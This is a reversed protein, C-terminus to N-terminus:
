NVMGGDEGGRGWGHLDGVGAADEDEGRGGGVESGEEVTRKGGGVLGWASVESWSQGGRGAGDGGGGRRKGRGGRWGKVVM